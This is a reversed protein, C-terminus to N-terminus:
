KNYVEEPEFLKEDVVAFEGDPINVSRFFCSRYGEHCAAGVGKPEVKFLLCEADCDIYVERVEQINGSTEGKVWLKQRSRSWYTMVGNELTRKFSERNMWAFMLVEGTNVDQVIAQILGKEDFKITNIAL